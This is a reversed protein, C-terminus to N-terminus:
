LQLKNKKTYITFLLLFNYDTQLSINGAQSSWIPGYDNPWMNDSSQQLQQQPPPLLACQAALITQVLTGFMSNASNINSAMCPTSILDM